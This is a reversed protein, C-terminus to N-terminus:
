QLAIECWVQTEGSLDRTVGWASSLQDVLFLGLGGPQDLDLEVLHPVALSGPDTVVLRLRDAKQSVHIKVMGSPGVDAHRVSNTVLESVILGVDDLLGAPVAGELRAVIDQRALRPTDRSGPLQLSIPM